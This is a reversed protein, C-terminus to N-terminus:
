EGRVPQMNVNARPGSTVTGEPPFDLTDTLDRRTDPDFDPFPLQSGERLERMIAETRETRERDVGSDKALYNVTSPFAFGTGSADVIDILRLFLDERVGLFVNNDNTRVYAFIEVDVSHDGFGVFRVRAPEETVM